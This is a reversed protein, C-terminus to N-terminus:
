PKWRLKKADEPKVLRCHGDAYAIAAVGGISYDLKGDKGQYLLVTEAPKSFSTQVKNAVNPNLSYSDGKGQFGPAKFLAENKCYPFIAKHWGAVTKPLREDYDTAFMITALALQKINSLNQAKKAAVRAKAFLAGNDTMAMAIGGIPSQISNIDANEPVVIFWVNGLKHLTLTDKVNNTRGNTTIATDFSATATTGSITTKFNGPTLKFGKPMPSDKVLQRFSDSLKGNELYTAAKQYDTQEVAACFGRICAEPTAAGQLGHGPMAFGVTCFLTVLVTRVSLM